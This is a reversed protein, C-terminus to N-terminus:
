QNQKLLDKVAEGVDSFRWQFGTEALRSSQVRTSNLVVAAMEGMALKLAVAPASVLWGWFSCAKKIRAVMERNTTMQPAVANYVGKYQPNEVSEWVLRALDDIHIWPHYQAGNGFFPFIGVGKTMLMKPLAGGLMSLVIGIRLIVTRQCCIGAGMGAEEWLICTKSMFENGPSSHEDLIEEGRDGYFGVASASVYVLPTTSQRRLFEELTLASNVRSGILEKKRQVSWRQDAIGAGALNIIIDPCDESDITRTTTDWTITSFECDGSQRQKRSLISIEYRGKDAIRAVHRGVLGDGGAIWVKRKQSNDMCECQLKRVIKM